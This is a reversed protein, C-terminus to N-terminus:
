ARRTPRGPPPPTARRSGRPGARARRSRRPARAATAGPPRAITPGSAPRACRRRGTPPPTLHQDEPDLGGGVLDPARDAAVFTHQRREMGRAAPTVGLDERGRDLERAALRADVQALDADDSDVEPGAEEGPQADADRGGFRHR